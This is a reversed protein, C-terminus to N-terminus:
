NRSHKSHIIRLVSANAATSVGANMVLAQLRAREEEDEIKLLVEYIQCQVVNSHSEKLLKIKRELEETKIINM